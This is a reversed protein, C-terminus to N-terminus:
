GKRVAHFYQIHAKAARMENKRHEVRRDGPFQHDDIDSIKPGLGSRNCREPDLVQRGAAVPIGMRPVQGLREFAELVLDIDRHDSTLWFTNCGRFKFNPESFLNLISNGPCYM